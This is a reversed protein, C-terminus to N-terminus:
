FCLLIQYKFICWPMIEFYWKNYLCSAASCAPDHSARHKNQLRPSYLIQARGRWLNCKAWETENVFSVLKWEPSSSLFLKIGTFGAGTLLESWSVGVGSALLSAAVQLAQCSPSVTLLCPITWTHWWEPVPFSISYFLGEPQSDVRFGPRVHSNLPVPPSTPRSSSDWRWCTDEEASLLAGELLPSLIPTKVICKRKNIQSQESYKISIKTSPCSPLPLVSYVHQTYQATFIYGGVYWSPNRWTLWLHFLLLFLLKPTIYM